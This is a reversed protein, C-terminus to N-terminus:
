HRVGETARREEPLDTSLLRGIQRQHHVVRRARVAPGDLRSVALTRRQGIQYGCRVGSDSRTVAGSAAGVAPDGGASTVLVPCREEDPWRSREAGLDSFGGLEAM